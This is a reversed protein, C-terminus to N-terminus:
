VERFGYRMGNGKALVLEVKTSLLTYASEEPIVPQCLATIFSGKKGDM